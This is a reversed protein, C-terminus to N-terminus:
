RRGAIAFIWLDQDLQALKAAIATADVSGAASVATAASTAAASASAATALVSTVDEFRLMACQMTSNNPNADDNYCFLTAPKIFATTPFASAIQASTITAQVIQWGLTSNVIPYVGWVDGLVAGSSDYCVVGTYTKSGGATTNTPDVTVRLKTSVQYNRSASFAIAGQTVVQIAQSNIQLVTGIGSVSPYAVGTGALDTTVSLSDNHRGFFKGGDRFDAPLMSGLGQELATQVNV